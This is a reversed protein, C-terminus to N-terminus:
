RASASASRRMSPTTRRFGSPGHRPMALTTPRASGSTSCPLPTPTCPPPCSRGRRPPAACRPMTGLGRRLGLWGLGAAMLLWSGPEPVAPVEVFQVRISAASLDALGTPDVARGVSFTSTHAFDAAMSTGPGVRYAAPDSFGAGAAQELELRYRGTWEALQQSPQFSFSTVLGPLPQLHNFTLVTSSGGAQAPLFGSADWDGLASTTMRRGDAPDPAIAAKGSIRTQGDIRLTESFSAYAGTPADGAHSFRGTTQHLFDIALDCQQRCAGLFLGGGLDTPPSITVTVDYVLRLRASAESHFVSAMSATAAVGAAIDTAQVGVKARAAADVGAVSSRADVVESWLPPRGPANVSSLQGSRRDLDEAAPVTIVVQCFFDQCVTQPGRTDYSRALLSYSSDALSTGATGALAGALTVLTALRRTAPSRLPRRHHM